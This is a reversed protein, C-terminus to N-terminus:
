GSISHVCPVNFGPVALSCSCGEYFRYQLKKSTLLRCHLPLVDSFIDRIVNITDWAERHHRQNRSPLLAGFAHLSQRMAYCLGINQKVQSVRKAILHNALDCVNVYIM